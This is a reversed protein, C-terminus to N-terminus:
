NRMKQVDFISNLEHLSGESIPWQTEILRQQCLYYLTQFQQNMNGILRTTLNEKYKPPWVMSKYKIINSIKIKISKLVFYLVCPTIHRKLTIMQNTLIDWATFSYIIRSAVNSTNMTIENNCCLSEIAKSRNIM